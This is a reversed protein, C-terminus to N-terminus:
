RGNRGAGGGGNTGQAGAGRAAFVAVSHPQVTYTPDEVAPAEAWELFDDPSDRFTDILRRWLGKRGPGAPPPLEFALPETYANLVVHFRWAGTLGEATFALTHSHDAWDPQDLRVGHWRIRSQHLLQNLSLDHAEPPLDRNLRLVILKRVARLIDSRKELLSWDFWSLENDQCYANNNGGQSRRVEDGMLLMPVGLALLTVTLFNKVQRNRLREVEPDDTPGEVGHSWSLNYDFGDCNDELNEENHKRDYSVLDNLTFGDHCTVFNVSQEAERQEHGYIEPSGM